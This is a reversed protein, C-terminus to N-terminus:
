GAARSRCGPSRGGHVTARTPPCAHKSADGRGSPGAKSPCRTSAQTLFGMVYRQEGVVGLMAKLETLECESQGAGGAWNTFQLALRRHQTPGLCVSLELCVSANLCGRRQVSTQQAQQPVLATVSRVRIGSVGFGCGGGACLLWRVKAPRFLKNRKLRQQVLHFRNVYLQVKSQVLSNGPSSGPPRSTHALPCAANPPLLWLMSLSLAWGICSGALLQVPLVSNGPVGQAACCRM